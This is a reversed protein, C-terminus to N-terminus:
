GGCPMGFMSWDEPPKPLDRNEVLAVDHHHSTGDERVGLLLADEAPEATGRDAHAPRGPPLGRDRDLFSAIGRHRPRKLVLHNIGRPTVPKAM